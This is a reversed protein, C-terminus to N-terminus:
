IELYQALSRAMDCESPKSFLSLRIQCLSEGIDPKRQM